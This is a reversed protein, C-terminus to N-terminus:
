IKRQSMFVHASEMIGFVIESVTLNSTNISLHSSEKYWPTREATLDSLTKRPNPTRLLPRNSCRSVRQLLTDVDAHLWIVYGLSRLLERNEPRIVIGGGTSIVMSGNEPTTLIRRLLSTELGRFYDEGQGAFIEPITTNQDKEIVADTDLFPLNMTRHLERGVTTKGCGMLGILVIHLPTSSDSTSTQMQCSKLSGGDEPCHFQESAHLKTSLIKKQIIKLLDKPFLFFLPSHKESLISLIHYHISQFSNYLCNNKKNNKTSVIKSDKSSCTIQFM